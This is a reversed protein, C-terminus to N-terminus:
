VLVLLDRQSTLYRERSTSDSIHEARIQLREAAKQREKQARASRGGLTLAQAAASRVSVEIYGGGLEMLSTLMQEALAVAEDHSGCQSLGRILISQVWLLRLPVRQCLAAAERAQTVALAYEGQALALSALIGHCWGTYGKALGPTKLISETLAMSEAHVAGKAKMSLLAALHLETQLVAFPVRIRKALTLAERLTQEGHETDGLEGQAQGLRNMATIQDRRDGIEQFAQTAEQSLILPRWPDSEFARIYDSQGMRLAGRLDNEDHLHPWKTMVAEARQLLEKALARRGYSTLLSAGLSGWLVLDRSADTTTPRFSCLADAMSAFDPEHGTVLAAWMGHFLVSCEWRSGPSVLPWAARGDLYADELEFRWCHAMTLLTRLEGQTQGSESCALGRQGRRLAEELDNCEFSRLGAKLFYEAAKVPVLGKEFHEAIALADHEGASELYEAARRHGVRRDEETLLGYASERILANRFAYAEEGPLRSEARPVILEAEILQRISLSVDQTSKESYLLARIGGRWFTAGYISAARIVRRAAPDLQGIRGQIMAVVTSPLNNFQGNAAVRILEELYLTNGGAQETLRAVADSDIGKGLVAGILRECAKRSLGSLSIERVRLGAWLRPFREHIEPRALALILFPQESLERLTSALLKITLADAWHLDELVLVVPHQAALGSFFAMASEAIQDSMIKPDNRAARLVPLSDDPFPVGCLEGLFAMTARQKDSHLYNGLREIIQAQLAVASSTQSRSLGLFQSLANRLIAYPSGGTMPDGDGRLIVPADDRLEVRRLFERSLRSKGVGSKAVVLIAQAVSEEISGALLMDLLGLEQERGVCPTPKGLLLHSEDAPLGEGSLLSVGERKTLAFRRSLLSASLEDIWVGSRQVATSNDARIRLLRAALDVAEGVPLNNLVTARGTALAVVCDPWREKLMLAVRAAQATQDTASGLGHLTAVLAGDLLWESRAGFQVLAAQLDTRRTLEPLGARMEATPGEEAIIGPASAIVVSLLEQEDSAFTPDIETKGSRLTNALESEMPLPAQMNAVAQLLARGDAFRQAPDKQLMHEVLSALSEPTGPRRIVLSIPTELLIRVLVAAVHEGGFPPQGALCEYIVCGLSFVDTAATIDKDGRAQEPAMYEPTGIVLGTRTMVQSAAMRRAIGFDLIKVREIEGCPLFLNSPKLDRHVVGNIHALALASTVQRLLTITDRVSLPGRRLRQSLDEGELWEMALFRQGDPATGHSVYSVIGPHELEALVSAERVFRDVDSTASGGMQLLKLAVPRETAMDRAAYVTGMGGTGAIREIAFRGAFLEGIARTM